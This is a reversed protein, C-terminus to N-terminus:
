QQVRQRRTADRAADPDACGCCSTAMAFCCFRRMFRLISSAEKVDEQIQMLTVLLDAPCHQQIRQAPAWGPLLLWCPPARGGSAGLAVGVSRHKFLRLPEIAARSLRGVPDKKAM